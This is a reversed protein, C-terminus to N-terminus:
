SRTLTLLEVVEEVEPGVQRGAEGVFQARKGTAINIVAVADFQPGDAEEDSVEALL